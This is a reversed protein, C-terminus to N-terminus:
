QRRYIRAIARRQRQTAGVGPVAAEDLPHAPAIPGLHGQQRGARWVRGADLGQDGRQLLAPAREGGRQAHRPLEDDLPQGHAVHFLGRRQGVHGVRHRRQGLDGQFPRQGLGQGVGVRAVARGQVRGPPPDVEPDDAHALQAGALEIDRGVDVEDIDVLFIALRAAARAPGDAGVLVERLHRALEVREDAVHGVVAEDEPDVERQPGVAVGARGTTLRPM